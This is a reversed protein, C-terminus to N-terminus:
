LETVKDTQRTYLRSGGAEFVEDQLIVPPGVKTFDRPQEEEMTAYVNKRNHSRKCLCVSLVSIVIVLILFIGGSICGVLVIDISPNSPTDSPCRTSNLSDACNQSTTSELLSWRSSAEESLPQESTSTYLKEKFISTTQEPKMLTSVKEEDVNEPNFTHSEKIEFTPITSSSVNDLPEM